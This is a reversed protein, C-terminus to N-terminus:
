GLQNLVATLDPAEVAKEIYHKRTVATGSHGLQASADHDGRERDILTAVTKRFAHPTVWAFADGRAERWQRRVNHPDRLTGTSSPFVVDWPNSQANLQMRMLTEVAFRPLLVTRFGSATKTHTQRLLGGGEAQCGPLRVVTGSLTLRPPTAALDIDAWRIALVEGIRAGTALLVDVLELLGMARPRGVHRGKGGLPAGSEWLRVRERLAKLEDLDLARVGKKSSRIGAVERVPNTALADHRVALGLVASLIVKLRKAKAPHDKAVSKLYRDLRSTSCEHLRLGGLQPAISTRVDTGYQAVTQPSLNGTAVIEELWVAALTELRMNRDIENGTAAIRDQLSRKLRLTAANASTGFAQVTRTVGDQDRFRASARWSGGPGRKIRIAGYTGIPLPHRPM